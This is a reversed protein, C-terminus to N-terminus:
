GTRHGQTEAKGAPSAAPRHTSPDPPFDLVNANSQLSKSKASAHFPRLTETTAFRLLLWSNLAVTGPLLYTNTSSGLKRRSKKRTMNEKKHPGGSRWSSPYHRKPQMCPAQHSRAEGRMYKLQKWSPSRQCHAGAATDVPALWHQDSTLKCTHAECMFAGPAASGQIDMYFGQAHTGNEANASLSCSWNYRLGSLLISGQACDHLQASAGAHDSWVQV